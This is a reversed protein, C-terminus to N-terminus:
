RPHCLTGALAELSPSAGTCGWARNFSCLQSREVLSAGKDGAPHAQGPIGTQLPGQKGM